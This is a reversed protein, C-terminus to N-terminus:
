LPAAGRGLACIRNWYVSLRKMCRALAPWRGKIVWWVDYRMQPGFRHNFVLATELMLRLKLPLPRKSGAMSRGVLWALRLHTYHYRQYTGPPGLGQWQDEARKQRYVRYNFLVEPVQVFEGWVSLEALIVLDHGYTNAHPRIRRLASSRMLGYFPSCRTFRVLVLRLRNPRTLGVTELNEDHTELAQGDEDILQVRPFCLVASPYRAFASLCQTLFTPEWADDHALWAFYQGRALEFARNFNDVAGVNTLNCSYRVRTDRAAYEQCIEATGDRSANDSIILEFHEYDQALVSDLAQRIYKEGNYVPMGISVFPKNGTMDVQYQYRLGWASGIIEM